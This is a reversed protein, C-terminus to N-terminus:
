WQKHKEFAKAATNCLPNKYYALVPKAHFFAIFGIKRSDRATLGVLASLSKNGICLIFNKRVLVPSVTNDASLM